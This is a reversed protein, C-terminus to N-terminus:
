SVAPDSRCRKGRVTRTNAGLRKRAGGQFAHVGGRLVSGTGAQWATRPKMEVHMVRTSACGYLRRAGEWDLDLLPTQGEAVVIDGHRLSNPPGAVGTPVDRVQKLGTLYGADFGSVVPEDM